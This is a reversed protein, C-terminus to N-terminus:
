YQKNLLGALDSESVICDRCLVDTLLDEPTETGRVVIVVCKLHHLKKRQLSKNPKEMKVQMQNRKM